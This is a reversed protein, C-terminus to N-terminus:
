LTVRATAVSATGTGASNVASIRFYLNGTTATVDATMNTGSVTGTIVSGVQTWGSTGTSSKEIKYGTITAGNAASDAPKVWTLTAVGSSKKVATPTGTIQAPPAATVSGAVNRSDTYTSLTDIGNQVARIYARYDGALAVVTATGASISPISQSYAIAGSTTVLVLSYTVGSVNSLGTTNWTATASGATSFSTSTISPVTVVTNTTINAATSWDSAGNESDLAVRVFYQTGGLLSTTSWGSSMAAMSIQQIVYTTFSSSTSYQIEWGSPTGVPSSPTTAVVKISNNTSLSLTPVGPKTTCSNRMTDQGGVVDSFASTGVGNVIALQFEYLNLNGFSSGVVTNNGWKDSPLTFDFSTASGTTTKTTIFTAPDLPSSTGYRLVFYLVPNNTGGTNSPLSVDVTATSCNKKTVSITPKDALTWDYVTVSQVDSYDSSGAANYAMIKAYYTTGTAANGLVWKNQTSQVTATNFTDFTPSTSYQVRYYYNMLNGTSSPTEWTLKTSKVGQVMAVNLPVTPRQNTTGLVTSSAGLDVSTEAAVSVNYDTGETLGSIVYKTASATTTASSVTGCSIPDTNYDVACWSVQYGRVAKSGSSTPADWTVELKSISPSTVYVTPADPASYTTSNRTSSNVSQGVANVARVRAFYQTSNSLGTILANSVRGVSLTQVDTFDADTAYDVKFGTVTTGGSVASARWTVQLSKTYGVTTLLTPAGPVSDTNQSLTTSWASQGALNVAAIRFYYTSADDLGTATYTNALGLTVEVAGTVFSQDKSYQLVYGTVATGGTVTPTSWNVTVSKIDGSGSTWAPRASPSKTTGNTAVSFNGRGSSNVAAVRFFYKTASPLGTIVESRTPATITDTTAGTFSTNTAYQVQYTTITSTGTLSPANWTVTLEGVGSASVSVGTPSGPTATAANAPAASVGALIVAVAAGIATLRAHLSVRM